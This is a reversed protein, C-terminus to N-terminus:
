DGGTEYEAVWSWNEKNVEEWVGDRNFKYQM